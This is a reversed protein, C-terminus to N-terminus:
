MKPRRRPVASGPLPSTDIREMGGWPDSPHIERSRSQKRFVFEIASHVIYYVPEGRWTSSHFAVARDNELRMGVQGASTAYGMNAALAKWDANRSFTEFNIDRARGVMSQLESVDDSDSLDVCRFALSAKTENPM